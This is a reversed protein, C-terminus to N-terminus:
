WWSALTMVRGLTSAAVISSARRRSAEPRRRSTASPIIRWGRWCGPWRRLRWWFSGARWSGAESRWSWCVRRPWWSRRAPWRGSGSWSGFRCGCERAPLRCGPAPRLALAVTSARKTDVMVETRDPVAFRDSASSRLRCRGTPTLARALRRPARTGRPRAGPARGWSRGAPVTLNEVTLDRKLLFLNDAGEHHRFGPQAVTAVMRGAATLIGSEGVQAGLQCALGAQRAMEVLELAALPGGCKSVGVNLVTCARAAILDRADDLSCLSEDVVIDEPITAVLRALGAVDEAALPQEYSRLGFPRLREAMARAEDASWACHADARLEVDRGLLRRALKAAKLDNAMGRGLKLKVDRFGYAKFFLLMGALAPGGGFPMVGGYRVGPRALGGLLRAASRGTAHGIADLLAVEVACWAAGAPSQGDHLDDRLARLSDAVDDLPVGRHMLAPGYVDAVRALSSDATEGTGYEYPVGEGYGVSGDTLQIRVILNVTSSRSALAHGFGFRFPLEVLQAVIREVGLAEASM